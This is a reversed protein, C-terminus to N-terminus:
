IKEPKPNATKPSRTSFFHSRTMPHLSPFPLIVAYSSSPSSCLCSDRLFVNPSPGFAFYQVLLVYPYCIHALLALSLAYVCCLCLFYPVRACVAPLDGVSHCLSFLFCRSSFVVEASCCLFVHVLLFGKGFVLLYQIHVKTSTMYLLFMASFWVTCSLATGDLLIIGRFADCPLALLIVPFCVRGCVPILLAIFCCQLCVLCLEHMSSVVCDFSFVFMSSSFLFVFACWRAPHRSWSCPANVAGMVAMVAPPPFLCVIEACCCLFILVVCLIWICILLWWSFCRVAGFVHFFVLCHLVTCRMRWSLPLGSMAHFHLCCPLLAPVGVCVSLKCASVWHCVVLCMESISAVMCDCSFVLMSSSSSLLGLRAVM